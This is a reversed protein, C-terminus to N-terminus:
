KQAPEAVSVLPEAKPARRATMNTMRVQVCAAVNDSCTICPKGTLTELIGCVSDPTMSSGAGAASLIKRLDLVGEMRGEGFYSGDPSLVGSMFLNDIDVKFKMIEISFTQPGIKFFPNNFEAQPFTLTPKTKDQLMQAPDDSAPCTTDPVAGEGGFGCAMAGIFNLKAPMGAMDAISLLLKPFSDARGMQSLTEFLNPPEEFTAKSMDMAYTRGKLDVGKNLLLGLDSTTFNVSATKGAAEITLTYATNPTLRLSPELAAKNGFPDFAASFGDEALVTDGSVEKGDKSKLSFKAATVSRSFTAAISMGGPVDKAGDKINTEITFPVEKEQASVFGSGLLFLFIGHLVAVKRM